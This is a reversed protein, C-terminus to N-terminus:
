LAGKERNAGSLKQRFCVEFRRNVWIRTSFYPTPVALSMNEVVGDWWERDPRKRSDSKRAQIQKYLWSEALSGAAAIKEPIKISEADLIARVPTAM